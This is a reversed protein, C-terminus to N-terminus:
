FMVMMMIAAFAVIAFSAIGGALLMTHSHQLHMEASFVSAKSDAQDLDLHAM